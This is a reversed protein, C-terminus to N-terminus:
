SLKRFCEQEASSTTHGLLEQIECLDIGSILLHSAFCHRLTHIGAHRTIGAEK